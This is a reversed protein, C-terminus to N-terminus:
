LFAQLSVFGALGVATLIPVVMTLTFWVKM